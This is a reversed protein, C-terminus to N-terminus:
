IKRKLLPLKIGEKKFLSYFDITSIIGNKHLKEHQGIWGNIYFTCFYLNEYDKNLEKFIKYTVESLGDFDLDDYYLIFNEELEGKILNNFESFVAEPEHLADSFVFNFKTKSLNKFEETDVEDLVSGQFYYLKNNSTSTYYNSSVNSMNKFNHKFNPSIPNIDYGTLNASTLSENLQLFNKLVSVGIELYNVSSDLTKEMFVFLDSYTPFNDIGKNLSSFIHGPIGYNNDEYQAKTLFSKNEKLFDRNKKIIKVMEPNSNKYFFRISQNFILIIKKLIKNIKYKINQM